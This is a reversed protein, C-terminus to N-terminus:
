DREGDGDTKGETRDHLRIIEDPKGDTRCIVIFEVRPSEGERGTREELEEVRRAIERQTAM